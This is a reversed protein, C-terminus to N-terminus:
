PRSMAALRVADPAILGFLVAGNVLLGVVIMGTLVLREFRLHMFHAGILAAKTLMAGLMSAVLLPRALPAEDIAVMLLTLVLLVGWTRWYLGYGAAGHRERM